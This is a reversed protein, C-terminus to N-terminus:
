EQQSIGTKISNQFNIMLNHNSLSQDKDGEGGGRGGEGSGLILFTTRRKCMRVVKCLRHDVKHIRYTDQNEQVRKELISHNIDGNNVQQKLQKQSLVLFM